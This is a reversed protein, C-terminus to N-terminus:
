KSSTTDTTADNLRKEEAKHEKSLVEKRQLKHTKKVNAYFLQLDALAKGRSTYAGTPSGAPMKNKSHVRWFGGLGRQITFAGDRKDTHFIVKDGLNEVRDVM